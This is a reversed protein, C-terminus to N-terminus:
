KLRASISTSSRSGSDHSRFILCRQLIGGARAGERAGDGSGMPHAHHCPHLLVVSPSWAGHPPRRVAVWRRGGWM